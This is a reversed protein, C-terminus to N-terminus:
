KVSTKVYTKEIHHYIGHLLMKKDPTSLIASAILEMYSKEPKEPKEHKNADRVNKPLEGPPAVTNPVIDDVMFNVGAGLEGNRMCQMQNQPRTAPAKNISHVNQSLESYPKMNLADYVQQRHSVKQRPPVDSEVKCITNQESRNLIPNHSQQAAYGDGPALYMLPPTPTYPKYTMSAHDYVYYQESQTAPDIPVQYYQNSFNGQWQVGGYMNTDFSPGPQHNMQNQVGHSVYYPPVEATLLTSGTREIGDRPYQVATTPSM